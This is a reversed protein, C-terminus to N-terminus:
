SSLTLFPFFSLFSSLRVKKCTNTHGTAKGSWKKWGQVAEGMELGFGSTQNMLQFITIEEDSTEFTPEGTSPDV